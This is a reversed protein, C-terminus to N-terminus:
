RREVDYRRPVRPTTTSCGRSVSTGTVTATQRRSWTTFAFMRARREDRRKEEYEGVVRTDGRDDNGSSRLRPVERVDPLRPTGSEGAVVGEGGDARRPLM